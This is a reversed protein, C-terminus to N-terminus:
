VCGTDFVVCAEVGLAIMHEESDTEIFGVRDGECAPQKAFVLNVDRRNDARTHVRDAYRWVDERSESFYITKACDEILDGAVPDLVINTLKLWFRSRM